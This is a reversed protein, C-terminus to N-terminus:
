GTINGFVIITIITADSTTSAPVDRSSTITADSTTSAPVDRTAGAVASLSQALFVATGLGLGNTINDCCTKFTRKTSCCSVGAQVAAASPCKSVWDTEDIVCTLISITLNLAPYGGITCFQPCITPKYTDDTCAGIYYTGSRTLCNSKALSPHSDGCCTTLTLARLDCPVFYPPITDISSSPIYYTEFM